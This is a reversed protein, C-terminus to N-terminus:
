IDLTIYVVYIMDRRTVHIGVYVGLTSSIYIRPAMTKKSWEKRWQIDELLMDLCGSRPSESYFRSHGGPISGEVAQLSDYDRVHEKFAVSNSDPRQYPTAGANGGPKPVERSGGVYRKTLLREHTTLEFMQIGKHFPGWVYRDYVKASQENHLWNVDSGLCLAEVRWQIFFLGLLFVALHSNRLQSASM